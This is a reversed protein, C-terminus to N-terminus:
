ASLRNPKGLGGVAYTSRQMKSLSDGETYRTAPGGARSMIHEKRLTSLAMVNEKRSARLV